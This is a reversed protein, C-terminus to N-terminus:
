EDIRLRVVNPTILSTQMNKLQTRKREPALDSTSVRAFSVITKAIVDACRIVRINPVKESTTFTIEMPKGTEPDIRELLTMTRTVERLDFFSNQM